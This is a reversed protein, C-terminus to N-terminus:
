LDQILPAAMTFGNEICLQEWLREDSTICHWKLCVQSVRQLSTGDLLSVIKIWIETPLEGLAVIAAFAGVAVLTQTQDKKPPDRGLVDDRTTEVTALVQDVLSQKVGLFLLSDSLHKAVRNFHDDTLKLHKHAAKMGKGNYEKGGFVHNMFLKQMRKQKAMDTKVFFPALVSDALIRKYFEDVTADIAAEGGLEQYLNSM